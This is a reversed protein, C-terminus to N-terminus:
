LNVNLLVFKVILSYFMGTLMIIKCCLSAKEYDSRHSAKYIILMTYILPFLILPFIYTLSIPDHIFRILIYILLIVIMLLVAIVSFKSFRIGFVVPLTKINNASDGEIDQMDKVIERALSILFAFIAYIGFWIILFNLNFHSNEFVKYKIKLLPLEFLLVMLPVLAAFFAVMLNGVILQSKYTTSYFYLLGAVVLFALSATRIGISYSIYIGILIAIFNLLLHINEAFRVSIFNGIYVKGPKNIKDTQIDYLDNVIYGAAALLITAIV